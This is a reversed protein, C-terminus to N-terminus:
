PLSSEPSYDRKRPGNPDDFRKPQDVVIWHCLVYAGYGLTVISGIVLGYFIAMYVLLLIETAVDFMRPEKPDWQFSGIVEVIGFAILLFAPASFLSAAASETKSCRFSRKLIVLTAVSTSFAGLLLAYGPRAIGAIAFHACLIATTLLITRLRFQFPRADASPQTATEKM